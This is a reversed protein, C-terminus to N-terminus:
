VADIRTFWDQSIFLLGRNLEGADAAAECPGHGMHKQGVTVDDDTRLSDGGSSDTYKVQRCVPRWLVQVRNGAPIYEIM